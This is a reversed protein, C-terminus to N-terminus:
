CELRRSSKRDRNSVSARAAMWRVDYLYDRHSDFDRLSRPSTEDVYQKLRCKTKFRHLGVKQFLRAM